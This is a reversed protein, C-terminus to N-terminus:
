QALGVFVVLVAAYAATGSMVEKPKDLFWAMVIGFAIVFGATAGLSTYLEKHLMMLWMPGILFCGGVAAIVLREKFGTIWSKAVNDNRTGGIPFNEDEWPSDVPIPRGFDGELLDDLISHIVYSDMKREGTVLFPDRPNQSCNIMYDYDQVAKVYAALDEEWGRTERGTRRIDAVHKVLRCQMKRLKMRQLEAFSIRFDRNEDPRKWGKKPREVDDIRQGRKRRHFLRSYASTKREICDILGDKHHSVVWPAADITVTSRTTDMSRRRLNIAEESERLLHSATSILSEPRSHMSRPIEISSKIANIGRVSTAYDGVPAPVHPPETDPAVESRSNRSATRNGRHSNKSRISSVEPNSRSSGDSTINIADPEHDRKDITLDAALITSYYGNLDGNESTYCTNNQARSM